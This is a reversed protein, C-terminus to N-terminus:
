QHLQHEMWSVLDAAIQDYLPSPECLLGHLAPYARTTVDGGGSEVKQQLDYCGTKDVVVDDEAIGIRIPFKRYANRGDNENDHGDDDAAAAAAADDNNKKSKIDNSNLRTLQVCTLASSPCIKTAKITLPDNECERRKEVDRYQKESSTSSSPIINWKPVVASLVEL